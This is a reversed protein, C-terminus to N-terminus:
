SHDDGCAEQRTQNVLNVVESLSLHTVIFYGNTLLLVTQRPYGYTLNLVQDSAASNLLRKIPKSTYPAIAVVQGADVAGGPGLRIMKSM